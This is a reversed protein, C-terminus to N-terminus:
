AACTRLAGYAANTVLHAGREVPWQAMTQQGNAGLAQRLPIDEVLRKLAAALVAPDEAPAIIGNQESQVFEVASGVQDTAVLAVGAQMASIVTTPFHDFRAPAVFIDSSHVYNSFTEPEAWDVFDLKDELGLTTRLARIKEKEEGSGILVARWNPLAHQQLLGLAQLFIDYGKEPILRGGALILTCDRGCGHEQRLADSRTGHKVFFPLPEMKSERIGLALIDKRTVQGTHFYTGPTRNILAVLLRKLLQRPRWFQRFLRLSEASPGDDWMILPRRRVGLILLVLVLVPYDWGIVFFVSRRDTAALRVLRADFWEGYGSRINGTQVEGSGQSKWPRGPVQAPGRLYHRYLVVGPTRAIADLLHTNHPTPAAHMFHITLPAGQNNHTM